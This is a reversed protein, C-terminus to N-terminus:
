KQLMAQGNFRCFAFKLCCIKFHFSLHTVGVRVPLCKEAQGESEAKTLLDIHLYCYKGASFKKLSMKKKM